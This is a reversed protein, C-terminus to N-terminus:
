KRKMMKMEYELAKEEDKIHFVYHCMEHYFVGIWHHADGNYHFPYYLDINGSGYCLGVVKEKFSRRFRIRHPKPIQYYACFIIVAYDFKTYNDIYYNDENELYFENLLRYMKKCKHLPPMLVRMEKEEV